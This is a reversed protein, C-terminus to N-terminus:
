YYYYNIIVPWRRAQVGGSSHVGPPQTDMNHVRLQMIISNIIDQWCFCYYYYHGLMQQWPPMAKVASVRSRVCCSGTAYCNYHTYTPPCYKTAIVLGNWSRKFFYQPGTILPGKVPIGQLGRVNVCRDPTLIVAPSLLLFPFLLLLIM